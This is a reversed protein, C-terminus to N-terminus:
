VSWATGAGLLYIECGDIKRENKTAFLKQVVRYYM